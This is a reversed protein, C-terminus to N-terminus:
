VCVLGFLDLCLWVFGFWVFVWAMGASCLGFLGLVLVFWVLVFLVCGSWILGIKFLAMALEVSVLVAVAVITTRTTRTARARSGCGVLLLEVCWGLMVFYFM